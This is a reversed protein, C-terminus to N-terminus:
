QSLQNKDGYQDLSGYHHYLPVIDFCATLRLDNTQFIKSLHIYCCLAAQQKQLSVLWISAFGDCDVKLLGSCHKFNLSDVLPVKPPVLLINRNPQSVASSLVKLPYVM